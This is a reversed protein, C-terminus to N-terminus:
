EDKPRPGGFQFIHQGGILYGVGAGIVAGGVIFAAVTGECNCQRPQSDHSLAGGATYGMVAALAGGALGVAAGLAAAQGRERKSVSAVLAVPLTHSVGAATRFTIQRDDCSEIRVPNVRLEAPVAARADTQV